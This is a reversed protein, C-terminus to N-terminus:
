EGKMEKLLNDIDEQSIVGDKNYDLEPIRKVVEKIPLEIPADPSLYFGPYKEGNVLDGVERHMYGLDIYTLMEAVTYVILSDVRCPIDQLFVANMKGYYEENKLRVRALEAELLFIRTNKALSEELVSNQANLFDIQSELREVYTRHLTWLGWAICGACLVGRVTKWFENVQPSPVTKHIYRNPDGTFQKDIEDQDPPVSMDQRKWYGEDEEIMRRSLEETDEEGLDEGSPNEGGKVM